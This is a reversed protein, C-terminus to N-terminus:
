YKRNWGVSFQFRPKGSVTDDHTIPFGYDLRLPGMQPINLRLGVGWNDHFNRADFDWAEANVAGIDYFAALRLREIIPLSYELSGMWYTNGGIPEGLSDKPGVDRYKYGRLTYAGGLYFRDWIHTTDSEGYPVITGARAVLEIVHGKAFGRFYWASELELKYFDVEAGLPGGALSTTL